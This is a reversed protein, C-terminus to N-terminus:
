RSLPCPNPYLRPTSSPCPPRAHQMEHPPLSNSVVSCSFQSSFQACHLCLFSGILVCFISSNKGGWKHMRGPSNPFVLPSSMQSSYSLNHLSEGFGVGCPSSNLCELMPQVSPMHTQKRGWTDKADLDPGTM